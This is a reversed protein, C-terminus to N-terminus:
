VKSAVVLAMGRTKDRNNVSKMGNIDSPLWRGGMEKFLDLKELKFQKGLLQKILKLDYSRQSSSVSKKGFPTTIILRGKPKLLEAFRNVAQKDASLDKPSKYYGVGIHELTSVCTIVDFGKKPLNLKNVDGQIFKLNPHTLEYNDLDIATVSYGISALQYPFNSYYCGVDLVKTKGSPKAGLNMLVLAYEVIRESLIEGYFIDRIAKKVPSNPISLVLGISNRLISNVM